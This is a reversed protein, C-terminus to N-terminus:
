LFQTKADVWRFLFVVDVQMMQRPFRKRYKPIFNLTLRSLRALSGCVRDNKLEHIVKCKANLWDNRRKGRDVSSSVPSPALRSALSESPLESHNHLTCLIITHFTEEASPQFMCLFRQQQLERYRRESPTARCQLLSLPVLPPRALGHPRGDCASVRHVFKFRGLLRSTDNEFRLTVELSFIATFSM